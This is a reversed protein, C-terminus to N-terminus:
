KGHDRIIYDWYVITSEMEDEMIGRCGWYVLITEM